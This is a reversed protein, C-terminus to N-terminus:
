RCRPDERGADTTCRVRYLADELRAVDGWFRRRTEMVRERLQELARDDRDWQKRRREIRRRRFLM